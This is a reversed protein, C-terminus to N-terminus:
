RIIAMALALGAMIATGIAAITLMKLSRQVNQLLTEVIKLQVDVKDNLAAQLGMAKELNDIRAEDSGTRSDSVVKRIANIVPASGLILPGLREILKQITTTSIKLLTM